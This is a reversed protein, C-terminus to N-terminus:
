RKVGQTDVGHGVGTGPEAFGIAYSTSVTAILLIFLCHKFSNMYARKKGRYFYYFLGLFLLAVFYCQLPYLM